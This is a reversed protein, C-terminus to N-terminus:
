YFSLSLLVIMQLLKKDSNSILQARREKYVKYYNTTYMWLQLKKKFFLQRQVLRSWGAQDGRTDRPWPCVWESIRLELLAVPALSPPQQVAVLVTFRVSDAGRCMGKILAPGSQASALHSFIIFAGM